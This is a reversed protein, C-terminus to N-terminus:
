ADNDLSPDIDTSQKLAEIVAESKLATAIKDRKELAESVEEAYQNLVPTSFPQRMKLGELYAIRDTRNELLSCENLAMYFNAPEIVLMQKVAERAENFRNLRVSCVFRRRLLM